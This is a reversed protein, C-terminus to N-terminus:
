SDGRPTSEAAAAEVYRGYGYSVHFQLSVWGLNLAIHTFPGLVNDILAIEVGVTFDAHDPRYIGISAGWGKHEFGLRLPWFRRRIARLIAM